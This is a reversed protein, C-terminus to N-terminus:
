AIGTTLTAPAGDILETVKATGSWRLILQLRVIAADLRARNTFVAYRLDTVHGDPATAIRAALLEAARALCQASRGRYVAPGGM